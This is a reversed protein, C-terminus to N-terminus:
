SDDTNAPMINVSGAMARAVPYAEWSPDQLESDLELQKALQFTTLWAIVVDFRDTPVLYVLCTAPDKPKKNKYYAFRYVGAAEIKKVDLLKGGPTPISLESWNSIGFKLGPDAKKQAETAAPKKPFQSELMQRITTALKDESDSDKRPIISIYCRLPRRLDTQRVTKYTISVEYTRLHSGVKLFKPLLRDPDLPKTLDRPDPTDVDLVYAEGTKADFFDPIRISLVETVGNYPFPIAIPTPFLKHFPTKRRLSGLTDTFKDEYSQSGCAALFVCAFLLPLHKYSLDM